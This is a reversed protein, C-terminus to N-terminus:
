KEFIEKERDIVKQLRDNDNKTETENLNIYLLKRELDDHKKTAEALLQEKLLLENEM